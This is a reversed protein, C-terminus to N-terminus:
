KVYRLDLVNWVYRPGFFQVKSTWFKGFDLKKWKKSKFSIFEEIPIDSLVKARRKELDKNTINLIRDGSIKYMDGFIFFNGDSTIYIPQPDGYYVKFIDKIESPEISEIQAEPPLVSKLKERIISNDAFTLSSFFLFLSLYRLNNM